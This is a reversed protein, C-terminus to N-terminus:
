CKYFEKSLHITLGTNFLYNPYIVEPNWIKAQLVLPIKTPDSMMNDLQKELRTPQYLSTQHLSHYVQENLQSLVSMANKLRFLRNFQKSIFYPLYGNLLLSM